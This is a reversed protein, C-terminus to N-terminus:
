PELFEYEQHKCCPCDTDKAQERVVIQQTRNGWINLKTLYPSVVDLRGCLIKIAEAAQLSSIAAVTPGLVGVTRCNPDRCPPPMEPLVCRLCPTHGPIISMVQGEGGVAGAFVWPRGTKVAYDNILYRVAFNDSGDLIVDVDDALDAINTRDVRVDVAEVTLDGNISRLREAAAEVKARSAAADPEAYLAQRHINTLDVRDYDALRLFGVGARALLEAAWSGLGGVGVVLVRGAMLARQGALGFDEFVVQRQYRGLNADDLESM